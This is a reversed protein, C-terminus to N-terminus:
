RMVGKPKNPSLFLDHKRTDAEGKARLSEGTLFNGPM